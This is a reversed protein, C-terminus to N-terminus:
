TPDSISIEWAPFNVQNGSSLLHSDCATRYLLATSSVLAVYLATGSVTISVGSKAGVTIKRGSTDNEPGTFDACAIATIALMNNSTAATWDAPESSCVSIQQINDRVYELAADLVVDAVLKAM